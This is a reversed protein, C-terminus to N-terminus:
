VSPVIAARMRVEDLTCRKLVKGDRFIEELVNKPNPAPVTTWKGDTHLLALRGKKSRKGPDTIPDKWVAHEQGDIVVASCKFAFKLTDRNFKQLLAGGSGFGVNDAAWGAAAMATYIKDIMQFDVADGQIVRIKDPLLFHGSKTKKLPGFKEGLIKLVHLVVEVPEGSDPRIILRGPREMIVNKLADGWLNECASFINWSDSVCAVPGAPYQQLMNRFALVENERGWSTITSHESAPISFGAMPCNYYESGLVCAPVTDTGKFNVLHALGGLAATELSSVGRFGFDHLKYELGSLDSGTALLWRGILEKQARSSTCVTSPYWVEVLLTELFNPLWFCAPDTNVCTLLVNHNEVVSGEPVASISVPLCGGHNELIYEWGAKNFLESSGFHLSFFQAAQDIKERTVVVGAFYRQVIYQLGFFVTENFKGGRSEFYSYIYETKPPYQRWHCAKYSDSMLMINDFTSHFMRHQSNDLSM